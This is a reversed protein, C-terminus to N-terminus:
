KGIEERLLKEEEQLAKLKIKYQVLQSWSEKKLSRATKGELLEPLSPEGSESKGVKLSLKQLLSLTNIRANYKDAATEIIGTLSYQEHLNDNLLKKLTKAHERAEGKDLFKSSKSSYAENFLKTMEALQQRAALPLPRLGLEYMSLQSRSVKLMMALNRQSIGFLNSINNEAKM